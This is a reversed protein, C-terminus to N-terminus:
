PRTTSSIMAYDQSPTRVGGAGRILPPLHQEKMEGGQYPPAPPPAYVLAVFGRPTTGVVSRTPVFGGTLEYRERRDTGAADRM